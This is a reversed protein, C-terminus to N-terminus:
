KLVYRKNQINSTYKSIISRISKGIECYQGIYGNPCSSIPQPEDATFTNFFDHTLDKDTTKYIKMQRM